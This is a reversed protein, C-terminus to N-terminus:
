CHEGGSPWRGQEGGRRPEGLAERGVGVLRGTHRSGLAHGRAGGEGLAPPRAGLAEEKELPTPGTSPPSPLAEPPAGGEVGRARGQASRRRRDVTSSPPRVVAEGSRSRHGGGLM